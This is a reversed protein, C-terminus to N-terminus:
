LNAVGVNRMAENFRVIAAGRRIHGNGGNEIFRKFDLYALSPYFDTDLWVRSVAEGRKNGLILEFPKEYSFHAIGHEFQIELYRDHATWYKGVRFRFPVLGKPAPFVGSIDAYTEGEEASELPRWTGLEMGPDYKGLIVQPEIAKGTAFGIDYLTGFMHSALDRIMGGQHGEFHWPRHDVTGATGSGELVAGDIRVPKGLERWTKHPDAGEQRVYPARPDNDKANGSAWLFPFCRGDNSYEASYILRPYKLAIKLFEDLEKMSIVPPKEVWVPIGAKAFFRAYSLHFAHPTMVVGASKEPFAFMALEEQLLYIIHNNRILEQMQPHLREKPLIDIVAAICMGVDPRKSTVVQSLSKYTGEGAGAVILNIM